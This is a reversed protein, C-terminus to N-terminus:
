KLMFGGAQLTLQASFPGDEEISSLRIAFSGGRRPGSEIFGVSPSTPAIGIQGEQSVPPAHRQSM